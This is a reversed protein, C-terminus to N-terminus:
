NNRIFKLLNCENKKAWDALYDSLDLSMVKENIESPIQRDLFLLCNAKAGDFVTDNIAILYYIHNSGSKTDKLYCVLNDEPSMVIWGSLNDDRELTFKYNKRDILKGEKLDGKKFVTAIAIHPNSSNVIKLSIESLKQNGEDSGCYTGTYEGHLNDSNLAPCESNNEFLFGELCSAVKSYDNVGWLKETTLLSWRDDKETLWIDLAILKEPPKMEKHDGVCFKRFNDNGGFDVTKIERYSDDITNREEDTLKTYAEEIWAAITSWTVAKEGLEAKARNYVALIEARLLDIQRPTYTGRKM